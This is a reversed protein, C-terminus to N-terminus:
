PAILSMAALLYSTLQERAAWATFTHDANPIIQMELKRAERLRGVTSGGQLRLLEIGPEHDAFVFLMNTGRGAVTELERGLDDSLKLRLFKAVDRAAHRLTVGARSLLVQAVNIVNVEGRLLRRWIVGSFANKRYYAAGQIVRQDALKEDLSMGDKWFFTLPNIMVVGDLPVGGVAAKFAHYAGACLGLAYCEAVGFRTRLWNAATAVDTGAHRTYVVNEDEGAHPRSDGIGSVDMRFVAYGLAAWRRALTVYLRSPGIHHTAGASLLVIAARPAGEAPTTVVGFVTRTADVFEASERVSTAGARQRVATRPAYGTQQTTAPAAAALAASRRALFDRALNLMARPVVSSHPAFMMEVYGPVVHREARAGLMALAEHWRAAAPLDDRDVILVHPAPSRPLKTLDVASLAARTSETVIFGMAELAPVTPAAGAAAAAGSTGVSASQMARLERLYARASVVPALAVLCDVDDRGDAALAALTAGLRIGALAVRTCGSARKLEDIARRVSAVWAALRDPDADNGSSDGTGDYDFRLTPIGAAAAEAALHRLTRHACIAEFGFPNCLVLGLAGGARAAPHLWGFLPRADDGFFLPQVAVGSM